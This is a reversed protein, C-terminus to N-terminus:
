ADLAELVADAIAMSSTLGPSEIGFLHVLGPIGHEAKGQIVFDAAAVDPGHIKPRVGCYTPSLANDDLGPWYSRIKDYFSATREGAVTYEPHTIWDDPLWEVDPGFRAQGGLDMTFHLGTGGIEPMPYILQTFPATGTLAYYNGKAYHPTPCHAAADYGDLMHAVQTACLGAANIVFRASLRTDGASIEIRGGADHVIRGGTVPSQVALTAGDREADGLLALMYAHSDFIGTSPSQIAAICYLNPEMAMAEDGGILALDEVGNALGQRYLAELKPLQSADTAVILKGCRRHAIGREACYQYIAERGAVCLRAKLSGTPYYIGAHVVESNRASTETGFTEHRELIVTEIGRQALARACALGVVGAGIVIAEIQEM